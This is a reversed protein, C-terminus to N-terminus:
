RNVVYTNRQQRPARFMRPTPGDMKKPHTSAWYRVYRVLAGGRLRKAGGTLSRQVTWRIDFWNYGNVRGDRRFERALRRKRNAVTQRGRCRVYMGFYPSGGYRPDHILWFSYFGDRFRVKRHRV